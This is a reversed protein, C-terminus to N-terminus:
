VPPSFIYTRGGETKKSFISKDLSRKEEEGEEKKLTNKWGFRSMYIM